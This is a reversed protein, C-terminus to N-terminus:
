WASRSFPFIETVRAAIAEEYSATSGERKQAPHNYTKTKWNKYQVPNCFYTEAQDKGFKEEKKITHEQQEHLEAVRAYFDEPVSIDKGQKAAQEKILEPAITIASIRTDLKSFGFNEPM